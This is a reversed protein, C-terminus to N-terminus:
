HLYKASDFLFLIPYKPNEGIPYLIPIFGLIIKLSWTKRNFIGEGEGEELKDQGRKLIYQLVDPLNDPPNKQKQVLYFYFRAVPGPFMWSLDFTIRPHHVWHYDRFGLLQFNKSHFFFIM